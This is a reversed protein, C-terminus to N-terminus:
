VPEFYKTKFTISQIVVEDAKNDWSGHEYSETYWCYVRNRARESGDRNREVLDYNFETDNDGAGIQGSAEKAGVAPNLTKMFLSHLELSTTKGSTLTVPECTLRGPEAHGVLTGGEWHEVAGVGMKLPSCTEFQAVEVGDIEIGFLYKHSYKQTM